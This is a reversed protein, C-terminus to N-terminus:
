EPPRMGVNDLQDALDHCEEARKNYDTANEREGKETQQQSFARYDTSARNLVNFVNLLLDKTLMPDRYCAAPQRRSEQHRTQNSSVDPIPMM